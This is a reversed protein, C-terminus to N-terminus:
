DASCKPLDHPAEASLGLPIRVLTTNAVLPGPSDPNVWVCVSISVCLECMCLFVHVGALCLYVYTYIFGLM